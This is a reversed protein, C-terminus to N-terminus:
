FYIPVAETIELKETSVKTKYALFEVGKAKALAATEAYFPDIDKALAFGEVDERQIIYLMVARNGKEIEIMLERLHKAGRSTVGDPFVGFKDRKLHVQKVEVYCVDDLLLDIRSNEEGYKVERRINNYMALESIKKNEIAEQALKNPLMTNITVLTGDNEVIEWTYKLGEEKDRPSIWVRPSNEILTIMSGTNPCHATVQEGGILEIDALFRKYRKILRGEILKKPFQM